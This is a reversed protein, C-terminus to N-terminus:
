GITFKPTGKPMVKYKAATMMVNNTAQNQFVPMAAIYFTHQHRQQEETLPPGVDMM